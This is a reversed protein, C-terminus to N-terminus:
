WRAGSELRTQYYDTLLRRNVGSPVMLYVPEDWANRWEQYLTGMPSWRLSILRVHRPDM